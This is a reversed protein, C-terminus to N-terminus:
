SALWADTGRDRVQNFGDKCGREGGGGGKCDDVDEVECEGDVVFDAEHWCHDGGFAGEFVGM